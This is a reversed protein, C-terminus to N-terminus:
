ANKIGYFPVVNEVATLTLIMKLEASENLIAAMADM